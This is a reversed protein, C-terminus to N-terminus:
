TPSHLHRPLWTLLESRLSDILVDGWLTLTEQWPHGFTGWAIDAPFHAYYDGDPFVPVRWHDVSSLAHAAPSYRYPTHQWDPATLEVSEALWVFARLASANIAAQAAVFRPGEVFASALDIVLRDRPLTIAPHTQGDVSRM